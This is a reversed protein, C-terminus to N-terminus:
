RGGPGRAAEPLVSERATIGAPDFLASLAALVALVVVTINRQGATIALVPVAVVTSGSLV